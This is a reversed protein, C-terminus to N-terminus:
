KEQLSWSHASRRCEPYHWSILREDQEISTKKGCASTEQNASGRGFYASSQRWIVVHQGKECAWSWVDLGGEVGTQCTVDPNSDMKYKQWPETACGNTLLAISGIFFLFRNRPM